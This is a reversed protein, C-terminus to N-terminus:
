VQSRVNPSSCQWFPDGYLPLGVNSSSSLHDTPYFPSTFHEVKIRQHTLDFNQDNNEDVNSSSKYESPAVDAQDHGHIFSAFKNEEPHQIMKLEFMQQLVICTSEPQQGRLFINNQQNSLGVEFDASFGSNLSSTEPELSSTGIHSSFQRSLKVAVSSTSVMQGQPAIKKLENFDFGWLASFDKVSPCGMYSKVARKRHHSSTEHLSQDCGQCIFIQHDLCHVHAARDGCLECLLARYHRGCLANASHIRADCPLCLQAADAKCYVVRRLDGCFECIKDM